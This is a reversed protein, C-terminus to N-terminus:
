SLRMYNLINSQDTELIISKFENNFDTRVPLSTKSIEKQLQGFKMKLM